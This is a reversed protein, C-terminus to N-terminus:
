FGPLTIFMSKKSSIFTGPQEDTQNLLLIFDGFDKHKLPAEIHKATHITEFINNYIDDVYQLTNEFYDFYGNKFLLHALEALYNLVDESIVVLQREQM